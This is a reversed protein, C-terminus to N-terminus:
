TLCNRTYQYANHTSNRVQKGGRQPEKKKTLEAHFNGLRDRQDHLGSARAATTKLQAALVAMIKAATGDPNAPLMWGYIPVREFSM